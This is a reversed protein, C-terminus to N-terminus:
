RNIILVEIRRNRARGAATQNSAVPKSAGYGRTTVRGREIGAVEVLFDGVKRAREESLKQNLQDDGTSDTHGSVVVDPSPFERIAEAIKRLLPFNQAQIESQGVPFEFGYTELLVNLGQRYVNAEDATFMAQIRDYRAEAERQAAEVRELRAQLDAESLSSTLELEEIRARATELEAEAERNSDVLSAVRGRAQTIVDHNPVTFSVSEGTPAMLTEIQEQYWLVVAEPDYDRRDFEKVIEGVYQSRNALEAARRAHVNARATESRDTELIGLALKLEKEARQFTEKAYRNAEAERAQDIAAQALESADVKLSDLEISSYGKILEPGADKASEIQGREAMRAAAQLKEDLEKFRDPLLEPAGAAVARTRRDLVDRLADTARKSEESAKTLRDLGGQALRTAEADNGDRAAAVAQDLAKSSAEFGSPALLDLGDAKAASLRTDLTGISESQSIVEDRTLNPGSACGAIAVLLWGLGM